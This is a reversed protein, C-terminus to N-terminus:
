RKKGKTEYYTYAILITSTTALSVSSSVMIATDYIVVGYVIWYSSSILAIVWYSLSVTGGRKYKKIKLAQLIKALSGVLSMFIVAYALSHTIGNELEPFM